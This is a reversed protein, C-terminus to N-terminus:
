LIETIIFGFSIRHSLADYDILSEGYGYFYQGYAKIRGSFPHSVTVELAGYGTNFNKRMMSTFQWQETKYIGSLEFYGMYRYIDPNDDGKAAPTTEGPILEKPSEKIRYWPQLYLAWNDKVFGVGVFLRNWSRSLLQTRGNSEHEIGLRYYWSGKLTEQPIATQYFVEPRYNTERFPSSAPTNYMQWFSKFTFGFYVSDNDFFLKEKTLPIKLSIQMKVEAKDVPNDLGPYANQNLYPSQNPKLNFAMPLIYNPLHPTIVFRNSETAKEKLLRKPLLEAKEKGLCKKKLKAVSEDDKATAIANLLCSRLASTDGAKDSEIHKNEAETRISRKAKEDSQATLKDEAFAVVVNFSILCLYMLNKHAACNLSNEKWTKLIDVVVFLM